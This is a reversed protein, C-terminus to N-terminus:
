SSCTLMISITISTLAIIASIESYRFLPQLNRYHRESSAHKVGYAEKTNTPPTTICSNCWEKFHLMKTAAGSKKIQKFM